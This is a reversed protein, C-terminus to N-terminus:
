SVQPVKALIIFNVVFFPNVINHAQGGGTNANTVGVTATHNHALNPLTGSVTHSHGPDVIVANGTETTRSHTEEVANGLAQFGDGSGAGQSTNRMGEETFGHTHGSDTISTTSSQTNGTFASTNDSDTNGLTGDRPDVSNISATVSPVHTHSPIETQTLTHTENGGSAGANRSTNAFSSRGNVTTNNVYGLPSRGRLDPLRFNGTGANSSPDLVSQLPSLITYLDPYTTQSVGSGDCILWIGTHTTTPASSSPWMHIIGIPSVDAVFDDLVQLASNNLGGWSNRSGGVTPITINLANTPM